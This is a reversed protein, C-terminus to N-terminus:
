STEDETTLSAIEAAPVPILPSRIRYYGVEAPNVKRQRAIIETMSTGCLRGQCPGMGTRVFAKTQNPGLSGCLVAERIQGASVNECRCIIVADPPNVIDERPKYLRQLLPRVSLHAIRNAALRRYASDREAESLRGLRTSISVAAIEGDFASARAGIIGGADGVVFVNRVSTEGWKDRLPRFSREAEDWDHTCDLSRTMQQHPIIGEHMAVLSCARRLRGAATSFSIGIAKEEGEIAIDHVGTHIEAGFKRISALMGIGKALYRWGQGTLAGPLRRLAALRDARSATDLIMVQSAGAQLCQRAYLYLLPGTGALVVDDRPILGSEKLMIQLAGITMVGPLTWGPLPVAREIAGCAIVVHRGRHRELRGSQRTWVEGSRDIRWVSRGLGLVVSSGRLREILPAGGEYDPGLVAMLAANSRNRELARYVQGGPSEQQDLLLVCAGDEALRAAASMGAPGAGIVIADWGKKM